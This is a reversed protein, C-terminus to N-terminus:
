VTSRWNVASGGASGSRTAHAAITSTSASPGAGSSRVQGTQLSTPMRVAVRHMRQQDDSSGSGGPLQDRRPATVGGVEMLIIAPLVDADPLESSRRAHPAHSAHKGRM